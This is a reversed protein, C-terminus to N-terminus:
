RSSSTKHGNNYIEKIQQYQTDPDLHTANLRWPIERISSAHKVFHINHRAGLNMMLTGPSLYIDHHDFVMGDRLLRDLELAWHRYYMYTDCVIDMSESDGWFLVDSIGHTEYDTPNLGCNGGTSYVTRPEIREVFRAGPNYVLDFRAKIVLDYRFNHREEHQRKLRNAMMISYLMNGFSGQDGQLPEQVLYDTPQYLNTVEPTHDTTWTHYFLDAGLHGFVRDFQAKTRVGTRVLGSLCIAVKGRKLDM